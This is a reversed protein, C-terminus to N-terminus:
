ETPLPCFHVLLYEPAVESKEGVWWPAASEESGAAAAAGGLGARGAPSGLGEQGSPQATGLGRHSLLPWGEWEAPEKGLGPSGEHLGLFLPLETAKGALRCLLAVVSAAHPM